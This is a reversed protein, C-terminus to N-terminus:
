YCGTRCAELEALEPVALEPEALTPEDLMLLDLVFSPAEDDAAPAPLEITQSLGPAEVPQAVALTPLPEVGRLRGALAVLASADPPTGQGRELYAVWTTFLAHEDALLQLMEPTVPQDQRLWLNITQELEWAVDGLDTLGVM